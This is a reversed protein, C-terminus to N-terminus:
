VPFIASLVFSAAGLAALRSAAKSTPWGLNGTMSVIWPSILLGFSGGGAVVAKSFTDAEFWRVAILLLFTGGATELIGASLARWREYRYTIQTSEFKSPGSLM